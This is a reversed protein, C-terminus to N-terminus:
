KEIKYNTISFLNDNFGGDSSIMMNPTNLAIVKQFGKSDVTKIIKSSM